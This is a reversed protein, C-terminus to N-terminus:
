DHTTVFRTGVADTLADLVADPGAAPAIKVLGTPLAELAGLAADVKPIM